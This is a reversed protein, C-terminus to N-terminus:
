YGSEYAHALLPELDGGPSPIMARGEDWAAALAQEDLAARVAAVNRQYEARHVPPLPAGLAERLAEAAGLLRAAREKGAESRVIIGVLGELCVAVGRRDGLERRIALSELYLSRAADLDGEDATVAALYGLLGAIVSTYGEERRIELSRELFGRASKLDGHTRATEGLYSLACAIGGRDKTEEFLVLSEELLAAAAPDGQEYAVEGLAELAWAIGAKDGVARMLALGEEFLDRASQYNGQTRALEGLANLPAALEDTKGLARCLAISEELLSRAEPYDGQFWALRGTQRLLRARLEPLGCPGTAGAAIAGGRERAADKGEDGAPERGGPAWRLLETLRERGESCYGRPYWFRWLASGFRLAAETEGRQVAGALAARLNDHEEEMRAFWGVDHGEYQEALTLFFQLHQRQVVEEEGSAKLCELGFERIMELAWFRPEGEEGGAKRAGPEQRLLSKDVLSTMGNLFDLGADSCVAEAAELTCGGVFVSLRQFLVKEEATLLDYSWAIAGRLTQQRDPLDRSGGTLLNLGNELRALLAQPSFLKIRAAALEIALPLGELRRCIEAVAPANDHTITFDPKVGSARQIFLEVAAYQIMPAVGAAGSKRGSVGAPLDDGSKLRSKRVSRPPVPLPPVLFEQEGRLHLVSRSSVLAKLRPCSALLDAVIPAADLVQEFNDLLLLLQKTGLHEKLIQLLPRNPVERVGLTQSITSAVLAADRIPALAVFFVGDAFDDLLEAAVQLGLRTKGTGGAGTLTILRLDNRAFLCCVAEVERERGILRTPQAPLNHLCVAPSSRQAEYGMVPPLYPHPATDRQNADAQTLTQTALERRSSTPFEQLTFDSVRTRLPPFESPLDPLVVQFVREPAAYDKFGHEGLDRLHMPHPLDHVVIGRTTHSLLIQGGHGAAGLRAAYHVAEGLYQGQLHEEQSRRVEGTHLAIRVKVAAREPWHHALLARQIAVAAHLARSPVAFVAVFGDGTTNIEHGGLSEFAQRLLRHHDKLVAEWCSQGLRQQLSSSGEIDTFLLTVIGEPPASRADM